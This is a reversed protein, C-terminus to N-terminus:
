VNAHVQLAGFSALCSVFVFHVSIDRFGDDHLSIFLTFHLTFILLTDKCYPSTSLENCFRNSM